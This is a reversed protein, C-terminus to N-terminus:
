AQRSDEGFLGDIYHQKEQWRTLVSKAARLEEKITYITSQSYASQDERGIDITDRGRLDSHWKRRLLRTLGQCSSQLCRHHESCVEDHRVEVRWRRDQLTTTGWGDVVKSEMITNGLGYGGVVPYEIAVVSSSLQRKIM